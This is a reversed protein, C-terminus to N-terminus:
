PGLTETCRRRWSTILIVTEISFPFKTLTAISTFNIVIDNNPFHPFHAFVTLTEQQYLATGNHHPLNEWLYEWFVGIVREHPRPIAQRKLTWCRISIRGWNRYDNIYCRVINSRKIVASWQVINLMNIGFCCLRLKASSKKSFKNEFQQTKIRIEGALRCAM